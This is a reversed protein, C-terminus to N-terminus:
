SSIFEHGSCISAGREDASREQFKVLRENERVEVM